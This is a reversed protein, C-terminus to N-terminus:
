PLEPERAATATNAPMAGSPDNSAGRDREVRLAPLGVIEYTASAIGIDAADLDRLIQRSMRDKIGRVERVPVVFRVSLELWNDTLRTYVHPELDASRVAYRDQMERLARDGMESIPVVDNVAAVLIREVEARDSAYNIPLVIEDWVYPFERTYNFVPETFIQGNSVTVVRGTYQRSHIWVAPDADQVSPPQGMEMVTTKIFGLRIVDGRVKGLVIRDGVNFTDGRLIVFYAAVSTIVQQLAFALGASLLGLGTTVDTGPNVWISFIGLLLVIAALLQIGQRSWFGAAAPRKSVLARVFRLAAWRVGYVVVFLALSLLLKKGTRWDVGIFTIDFLKLSPAGFRGM